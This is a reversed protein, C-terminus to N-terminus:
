LLEDNKAELLAKTELNFAMEEYITSKKFGYCHLNLNDKYFYLKIKFIFTGKDKIQLNSKKSISLIGYFDCIEIEYDSFSLIIGCIEFYIVDDIDLSLVNENIYLKRIIETNFKRVFGIFAM